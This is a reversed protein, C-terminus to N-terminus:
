PTTDVKPRRDGGLRTGPRRLPIVNDTTANEPGALGTWQYTREYPTGAARAVSRGDSSIGHEAAQGLLLQREPAVAVPENSRWGQSSMQIYLSRARQPTIVELDAARKVIAAVSLGYDAKIRLYGHLTLSETVRQKVVAAPILMAGAFQYARVERPDRTSRIPAGLDRDFIVHGLEHMVTMRAVAPPQTRVTAILPRDVRTSPSSIGHHNGDDDVEPLLGHIVGVGLREAARTANPLPDGPALSLKSRLNAATEEVDDDAAEHVAATRYGSRESALRFLRAAENFASVVKAEARVTAKSTKRFTPTGLETVDRPITFFEVPLDFQDATEQALNPPLPKDEQEIRSIFAQGVGLLEALDAQTLGEIQRLTILRDGRLASESLM